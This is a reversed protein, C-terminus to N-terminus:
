SYCAREFKIPLAGKDSLETKCVCGGGGRFCGLKAGTRLINKFNLKKHFTIGLEKAYDSEKIESNLIKITTDTSNNGSIMLHCNEDNLPLLLTPVFLYVLM